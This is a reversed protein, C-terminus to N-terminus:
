SPQDPALSRVLRFYGDVIAATTTGGRLRHGDFAAIPAFEVGTGCLFAEDAGYADEPFLGREQAPLGMQGAIRLVVSRTVGLLIGDEPRPTALVGDRLLFLNATPAEALRGEGTILITDDFGERRAALLALRPGSYNSISKVHQPFAEEAPKRWRSISVSMAERRALWRGRGMPKLSASWSTTAPATMTGLDPAGATIRLYCDESVGNRALLEALRERLERRDIGLPPLAVAAVSRDLRDLHQDLSFLRVSRGDDQAYARVGEFVVV